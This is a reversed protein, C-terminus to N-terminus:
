TDSELTTEINEFLLLGRASKEHIGLSQPRHAGRPLHLRLVRFPGAYVVVSGRPCASMRNGADDFGRADAEALDWRSV